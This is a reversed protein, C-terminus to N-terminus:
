AFEATSSFDEDTQSGGAGCVLQALSGHELILPPVYMKKTASTAVESMVSKDQGSKNIEEKM